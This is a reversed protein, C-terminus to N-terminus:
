HGFFLETECPDSLYSHHSQKQSLDLTQNHLDRFMQDQLSMMILNLSTCEVTLVEMHQRVANPLITVFDRSVVYGVWGSRGPSKRVLNVGWKRACPLAHM